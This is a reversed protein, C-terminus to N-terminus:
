SSVVLGQGSATPETERKHAAAAAAPMGGNAQKDDHQAEIATTDKKRQDRLCAMLAEVSKQEQM